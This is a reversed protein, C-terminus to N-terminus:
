RNRNRKGTKLREAPTGAERERKRKKQGGSECNTKRRSGTAPTDKTKGPKDTKRRTPRATPAPRQETGRRTTDVRQPPAGNKDARKRTDAQRITRGTRRRTLANRDQRTTRTTTGNTPKDHTEPKKRRTPRRTSADRLSRRTYRSRTDTTKGDRRIQPTIAGDRRGDDSM